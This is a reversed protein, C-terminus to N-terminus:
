FFNINLLAAALCYGHGFSHRSDNLMIDLNEKTIDITDDVIFDNPVGYKKKYYELSEQQPGDVEIILFNEGGDLRQKLEHFQKEKKVSLIYSKCYIEKRAEIYNLRKTKDNEPISYLCTKRATKGVPYRIPDNCEFGKKRWEWYKKNPSGNTDTHKESPHDWVVRKDWRSYTQTTQPIREYVKSFQWLNEILIGSEDRLVYPGLSGYETSPTLVIINTYGQVKPFIKQNHSYTITGVKIKGRLEAIVDKINIDFENCYKKVFEVCFNM